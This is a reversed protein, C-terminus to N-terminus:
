FEVVSFGSADGFEDVMPSTHFLQHYKDPRKMIRSRTLEVPVRKAMSEFSDLPISVDYRWGRRTRDTKVVLKPNWSWDMNSSQGVKVRRVEAHSGLM